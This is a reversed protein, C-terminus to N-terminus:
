ILNLQIELDVCSMPVLRCGTVNITIFRKKSVAVVVGVLDFDGRKKKFSLPPFVFISYM